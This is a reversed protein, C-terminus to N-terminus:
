FHQKLKSKETIATFPGQSFTDFTFRECMPAYRHMADLPIGGDTLLRIMSMMCHSHFLNVTQTSRYIYVIVYMICFAHLAHTDKNCEGLPM